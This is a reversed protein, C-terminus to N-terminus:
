QPTMGRNVTALQSQTRQQMMLPEAAVGGNPLAYTPAQQPPMPVGQRMGPMGQPAGQPAGQPMGQPPMGQGMGPMGPMGQPATGPMPTGPPVQGAKQAAQFACQRWYLDAAQLQEPTADAAYIIEREMVDQHVAENDQWRPPGIPQGNRIAEAIRQAAAEQMANPTHLDGIFAFPMRRRYEDPPILGKQLMDDLLYLKLSRPMPFMVEPDLEIDPAGDLDDKSLAAALDPRTKGVVGMARPMEYGWAMFACNIEAWEKYSRCMAYIGPAFVRELQERQALIARGSAGTSLSGRATDNYGTLEEIRKAEAQLLALADQGISFGTLQKVAQDIPGPSRVEIISDAGGTLTEQAIANTRSLLRGGSNKRINEVLKSYVANLRMQAEIWQEMVAAPYFAPDSSGDSVRVLPVRGVLLTNLYALKNGVVVLHLGDPLYQTPECYVTFREVTQQGAFRDTMSGGMVRDRAGTTGYAGVSEGVLGRQSRGGDSEDTVEQGYVAVAEAVPITERIVWYYPKRTATANASVRVQEIRVVMTRVDGVRQKMGGFQHWPGADADWYVHWFACGDTQAWYGAERILADMDQEAHGNELAIQTAQARKQDDPDVTSPRVRAGPRQEALVQLRWDLSPGVMNVVARVTDKPRPPERYPGRGNSSLWQLGLRFDRNRTVIHLRPEHSGAHRDWLGRAWSVFDFQSMAEALPPFFAGYLAEVARRMAYPEHEDDTTDPQPALQPFLDRVYRTFADAEPEVPEPEAAASARMGNQDFLTGGLAAFPDPDGDFPAQVPRPALMPATM